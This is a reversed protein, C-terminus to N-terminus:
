QVWDSDTKSFITQPAMERQNSRGVGDNVYRLDRLNNGAEILAAGFHPSTVSASTESGGDVISASVNRGSCHRPVDSPTM